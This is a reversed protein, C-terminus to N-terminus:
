DRTQRGGIECYEFTINTLRDREEGLDVQPKQCVLAVHATFGGRFRRSLQLGNRLQLRPLASWWDRRQHELLEPRFRSFHSSSPARANAKPAIRAPATTPPRRRFTMSCAFRDRM